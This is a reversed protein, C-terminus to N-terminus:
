SRIRDIFAALASSERTNGRRTAIYAHSHLLMRESAKFSESFVNSSKAQYSMVDILFYPQHISKQLKQLYPLKCMYSGDSYLPYTAYVLIHLLVYMIM